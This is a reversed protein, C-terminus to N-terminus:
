FKLDLNSLSLSRGKLIEDEVWEPTIGHLLAHYHSRWTSFVYDSYDIVSFIEILEDENGDSLHVPARIQGDEWFDVIKEEFKILDEKTFPVERIKEYKNLNKM